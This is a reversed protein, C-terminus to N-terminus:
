HESGGGAENHCFQHAATMTPKNCLPGTAASDGLVIGDYKNVVQWTLHAYFLRLHGALTFWMGLTSSFLICVM